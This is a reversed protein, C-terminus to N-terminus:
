VSNASRSNTRVTTTEDTRQAEEISLGEIPPNLDAEMAALEGEVVDKPRFIEQTFQPKYDIPKRKTSSM